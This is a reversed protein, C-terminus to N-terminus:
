REKWNDVDKGVSGKEEVNEKRKMQGREREKGTRERGREKEQRERDKGRKRQKRQRKEIEQENKVLSFLRKNNTKTLKREDNKKTM